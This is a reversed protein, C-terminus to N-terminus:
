GAINGELIKRIKDMSKRFDKAKTYTVFERKKLDIIPTNDKLSNKKAIQEIPSTM